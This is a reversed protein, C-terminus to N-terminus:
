SSHTPRAGDLFLAVIRRIHARRQGPTLGAYPALSAGSPTGKVANLFYGAAFRPDELALEGQGAKAALYREVVTIDHEPGSREFAAVVEPLQSGESEYVLQLRVADPQCTFEVFREAITTLAEAVPLGALEAPDFDMGSSDGHAAIVAAFLEAKSPYRTYLTTKSMRAVSAVEDMSTAAYGKAVFLLRAVDILRRTKLDPDNVPAPSPM